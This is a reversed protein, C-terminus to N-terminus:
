QCNHPFTYGNRTYPMPHDDRLDTGKELLQDKCPYMEIQVDEPTQREQHPSEHSFTGDIENKVIQGYKEVHELFGERTYRCWPDHWIAEPFRWGDHSRTDIANILADFGIQGICARCFYGSIFEKLQRDFYPARLFVTYRIHMPRHFLRGVTAVFEPLDPARLRKRETEPDPDSYVEGRMASLEAVVARRDFARGVGASKKLDVRGLPFHEGYNGSVLNVHPIRELVEPSFGIGRM